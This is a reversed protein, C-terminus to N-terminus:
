VFCSWIVAGIVCIVMGVVSVAVGLMDADFDNPDIIM